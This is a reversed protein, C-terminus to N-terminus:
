EDYNSGIEEDHDRQRKRLDRLQDVISRRQQDLRSVEVPDPKGTKEVVAIQRELSELMAELHRIRGEYM